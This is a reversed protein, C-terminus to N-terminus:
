DKIEEQKGIKVEYKQDGIQLSLFVNGQINNLQFYFGFTNFTLQRWKILVAYEECERIDFDSYATLENSKEPELSSPAHERSKKKDSVLRNESM